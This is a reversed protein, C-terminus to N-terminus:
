RMTIMARYFFREWSKVFAKYNQVDNKKKKKHLMGTGSVSTNNNQVDDKDNQVYKKHLMRSVFMLVQVFKTTDKLKEVM